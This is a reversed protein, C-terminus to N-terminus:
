IAPYECNMLEYILNEDLSEDIITTFRAITEAFEIIVLDHSEDKILEIEESQIKQFEKFKILCTDLVNIICYEKFDESFAQIYSM